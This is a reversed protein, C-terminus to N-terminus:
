RGWANRLARWPWLSAVGQRWALCTLNASVPCLCPVPPDAEAGRGRNAPAGAPAGSRGVTAAAPPAAIPVSSRCSPCYLAQNITYHKDKWRGGVWNIRSQCICWIWNCNNIPMRVNVNDLIWRDILIWHSSGLVM